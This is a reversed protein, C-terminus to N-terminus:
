FRSSPTARSAMVEWACQMSCLAAQCSRGLAQVPVMYMHTPTHARECARVSTWLVGKYLGVLGEQRLCKRLVVLTRQQLVQQRVKITDFPQGVLVVAQM